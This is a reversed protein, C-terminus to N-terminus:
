WGIMWEVEIVLPKDREHGACHEANRSTCNDRHKIQCLM